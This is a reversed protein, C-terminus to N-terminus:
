IKASPPTECVYINLFDILWRMLRESAAIARRIGHLSGDLKPSSPESRVHAFDIIRVDAVPSPRPVALLLGADGDAASM